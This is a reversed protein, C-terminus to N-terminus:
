NSWEKFRGKNNTNVDFRHSFTESGRGDATRNNMGWTSVLIFLWPLITNVPSLSIVRLFVKGLATQDM